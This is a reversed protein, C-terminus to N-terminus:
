SPTVRAVLEMPNLPKTMFDDAGQILGTIKDLDSSKASTIKDLESSKVSLHLIPMRHKDRIQRTAEDGDLRPTMIDLLALDTPHKPLADVAQGNKAKLSLCGRRALHLEVLHAIETDDDAILITM